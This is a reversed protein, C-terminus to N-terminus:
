THVPHWVYPASLSIIPLQYSYNNRVQYTAYKVTFDLIGPSICKPARIYLFM